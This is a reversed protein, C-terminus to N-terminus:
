LEHYLQLNIIKEFINLNYKYNFLIKLLPIIFNLFWCGAINMKEFHM